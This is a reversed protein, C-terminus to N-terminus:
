PTLPEIGRLEMFLILLNDRVEKKNEGLNYLKQITSLSFCVLVSKFHVM